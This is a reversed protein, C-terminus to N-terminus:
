AHANFYRKIGEELTITPIFGYERQKATDGCRAFVGTPKGVQPVILLRKGLIKCATHILENFSTYIGTSLNLASGDDIKDMTELVGRVCDDIHIFDRKQEGSGWVQITDGEKARMVQNMLNPFPYSTHQDEGYGSFPRYVVSKIGHKEYALKGLYECTLKAWGYSMDPLGIGDVFDVMDERLLEYGDGLVPHEQSSVPYVASSSFNIVKGPKAKVAWQWMAADISLDDAVEIPNGEIKARGGVVAACHFIYDFYNVKEDNKFYDRCDMRAFTYNPKETPKISSESILNDVGLVVDGRALLADVLHRGVFGAAGTCIIRSM